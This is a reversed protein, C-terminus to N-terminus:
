QAQKVGAAGAPRSRRWWSGLGRRVETEPVGRYPPLDRRFSSIATWTGATRIMRIPGDKAIEPACSTLANNRRNCCLLQIVSNLCCITEVLTGLGPHRAAACRNPQCQAPPRCCKVELTRQPVANSVDPWAPMMAGIWVSLHSSCTRRVPDSLSNGMFFGACCRMASTGRLCGWSSIVIPM